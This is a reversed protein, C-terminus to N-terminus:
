RNVIAQFQRVDTGCCGGKIKLDCKTMKEAMKAVIEKMGGISLGDLETSWDVEAYSKKSSNVRALQAPELGTLEAEGHKQHACNFGFDLAYGGSEEDSRKLAEQFTM